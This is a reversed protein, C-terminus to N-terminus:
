ETSRAAVAFHNLRVRAGSLAAALADHAAGLRIRAHEGQAEIAIDLTTGRLALTAEIRGLSPLEIAVRTRWAPPSAAAPEDDHAADRDEEFTVMARQGPWVDGRWAIARTDFADLQRTILATAEDVLPAPEIGPPPAMSTWAAQPERALASSPIEGRVWRALHAEYFLGSDALSRYLARAIDAPAAQPSAGLPAAAAITPPTPTAPTSTRLVAQLLKGGVTLAIPASDPASPATSTAPSAPALATAPAARRAAAQAVPERLRGDDVHAANQAQPRSWSAIAATGREAGPRDDPTLSAVPMVRAVPVAPGDPGGVQRLTRILATLSALNIM